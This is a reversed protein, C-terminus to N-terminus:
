RINTRARDFNFNFGLRHTGGLDSYTAYSYYFHYQEQLHFGVGFSPVFLDYALFKNGAILSFQDQFVYEIGFHLGFDTDISKVMDLALTTNASSLKYAIGARYSLPIKQSVREYTVDQGLNQVVLGASLGSITTNLYFGADFGFGAATYDGLSDHFYKVVVGMSFAVNFKYSFGLNFVSSSVNFSGLSRGLEDRAELEPMWMHVLGVGMSLKHSFKYSAIINDVKIDEFWETHNLSLVASPINALGAPNYYLSTEDDALGAFAESLGAARPSPAFRLLLISSTGASLASEQARLAENSLLLILLVIIGGLRCIVKEYGSRRSIRCSESLGTLIYREFDISM